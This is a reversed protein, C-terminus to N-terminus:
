NGSLARTLRQRLRPRNLVVIFVKRFLGAPCGIAEVGHWSNGRRTFLFSWNGTARAHIVQDFDTFRPASNRSFRGKDDLVLTEGGWSAQWEEESNLYFIHSGLKRRADCHPSVSDGVGAWHWHFRLELDSVGVLRCLLERYPGDQLEDLFEQWAPPLSLGQAYELAFRDHPTQGHARKKGYIKEFLELSPLDQLLTRYAEEHLLGEPNVYPYPDRTQYAIPDLAELRKLDLYGV